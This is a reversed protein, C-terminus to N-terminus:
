SWWCFWFVRVFKLIYPRFIRANSVFSCCGGITFCFLIINVVLFCSVKGLALEADKTKARKSQFAILKIMTYLYYIAPVLYAASFIIQYALITEFKVGGYARAIEFAYEFILLGSAM